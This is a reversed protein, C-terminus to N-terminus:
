LLLVKKTLEEGNGMKLQVHASEFHNDSLYLVHNIMIERGKRWRDGVVGVKRFPLDAGAAALVPSSCTDLLGAEPIQRRRRTELM